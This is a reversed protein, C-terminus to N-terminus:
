ALGPFAMHYLLCNFAQTNLPTQAHHIYIAPFREKSEKAPFIASLIGKKKKKKKQATDFNTSKLKITLVRTFFV